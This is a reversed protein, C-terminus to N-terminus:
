PHFRDKIFNGLDGKHADLYAETLKRQLALREQETLGGSVIEIEAHALDRIAVPCPISSKTTRDIM